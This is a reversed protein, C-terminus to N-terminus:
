IGGPRRMETGSVVIRSLHGRNGQRSAHPIQESADCMHQKRAESILQPKARRRCRQKVGETRRQM